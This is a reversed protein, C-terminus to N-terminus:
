QLPSNGRSDSSNRRKCSRHHHTCAYELYPRNRSLLFSTTDATRNCGSQRNARRSMSDTSRRCHLTAVAIARKRRKSKSQVPQCGKESRHYYAHHSVNQYNDNYNIMDRAPSHGQPSKALNTSYYCLASHCTHTVINLICKPPIQTIWYFGYIILIYIASFLRNDRRSPPM